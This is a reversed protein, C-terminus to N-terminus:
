AQALSQVTPLERMWREFYPIVTKVQTQQLMIESIWIAYPDRTRRWPLDRKTTAYWRLLPRIIQKTKRMISDPLIRVKAVHKTLAGNSASANRQPLTAM